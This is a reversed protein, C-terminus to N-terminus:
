SGAENQLNDFVLDKWSGPTKEIVGTRKMFDAYKMFGNPTMTFRIGESKMQSLIDDPANKVKEAEVFLRATEEPNKNILETAEKLADVFAKYLKPNKTKFDEGMWVLNFTHPGGLVDYSNLVRRIAPNKLEDYQFPPSTFHAAIDAKALLAQLGDPHAMAVINEDLAKPNGLEKEAAMQLTIHQISGPAPLAIKDTPKFDKLSNIEPKNTNLYLPMDNLAGAARWKIGKDWGQIFPAVGGSGVELQGALIADRIAPGSTLENWQVQVGPAYKEILKKERMVILGLYGLGPQKAIRITTAEQSGGPAVGPLSTCAFTLFALVVSAALVIRKSARSVKM